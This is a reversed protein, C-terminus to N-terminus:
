QPTKRGASLKEILAITSEKRELPTGGLYATGDALSAPTRGAKDKVDLRAGREALFQV